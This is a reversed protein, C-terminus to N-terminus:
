KNKGRDGAGDMLTDKCPHTPPPTTPPHTPPVPAPSHMAKHKPVPKSWAGVTAWRRVRSRRSVCRYRAQPGSHITYFNGSLTLPHKPPKRPRFKTALPNKLPYRPGKRGSLPRFPSLYGNLFVNTGSNRGLFGGLCGKCKMQRSKNHITPTTHGHNPM